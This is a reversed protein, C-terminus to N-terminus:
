TMCNSPSLIRCMVFIQCEPRAILASPHAHDSLYSCGELLAGRAEMWGIDTTCGAHLEHAGIM